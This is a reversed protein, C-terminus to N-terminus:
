SRAETEWARGEAHLSMHMVYWRPGILDVSGQMFTM